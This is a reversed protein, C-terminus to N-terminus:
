TGFSVLLAGKVVALSAMQRSRAKLNKTVKVGLHGGLWSVGLLRVTFAGEFIIVGTAIGKLKWAERLRQQQCHLNRITTCPASLLLLFM